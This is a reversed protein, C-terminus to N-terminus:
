VKGTGHCLVCNTMTINGNSGIPQRGTGNCASCDQKKGHQGM